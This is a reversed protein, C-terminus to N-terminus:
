PSTPTLKLAPNGVLASLRTLTHESGEEALVAIAVLRIDDVEFRSVEQRWFWERGGLPESGRDTGIDPWRPELQLEALRNAAVWQAYTRDRLSANISAAESSGKLLAGMALAVVATAILVEALTFGRQARHFSSPWNRRM